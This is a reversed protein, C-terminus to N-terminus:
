GNFIAHIEKQLSKKEKSIYENYKHHRVDVLKILEGEIIIWQKLRHRYKSKRKNNITMDCLKYHLINKQKRFGDM